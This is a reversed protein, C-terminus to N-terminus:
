RPAAFKHIFVKPPMRSRGTKVQTLPGGGGGGPSFIATQRLTAEALFVNHQKQAGIQHLRPEVNNFLHVRTASKMEGISVKHPRFGTM